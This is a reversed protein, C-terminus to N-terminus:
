RLCDDHMGPLLYLSCAYFLSSHALFTKVHSCSPLLQVQVKKHLATNKLLPISHQPVGFTSRISDFGTVRQNERILQRLSFETVGSTNYSLVQVNPIKSASDGWRAFSDDALLLQLM